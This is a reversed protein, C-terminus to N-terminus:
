RLPTTSGPTFSSSGSLISSPILVESEASDIRNAQLPGSYINAPEEASAQSVRNQFDNESDFGVQGVASKSNTTSGFGGHPTAPYFSNSDGGSNSNYSPPVPARPQQVPPSYRQGQYQNAVPLGARPNYADNVQDLPLVVGEITNQVAQQAPQTPAVPSEGHQRVLQLLQSAQQAPQTPAVPSQKAAAMQAKLMAIQRKAEEVESRMKEVSDNNAIPTAGFSNTTLANPKSLANPKGLQLLPNSNSPLAPQGANLDLPRGPNQAIFSGDAAIKPFPQNALDQTRPSVNKLASLQNNVDQVPGAKAVQSKLANAKMEAQKQAALLRQEFQSKMSNVDSKASSKAQSGASMLRGKADYLPKKAGAAIEGSALKVNNFADSKPLFSGGGISKANDIAKGIPAAAFSNDKAAFSNSDGTLSNKTGSGSNTASNMATRFDQQAGSLSNSAASKTDEFKNKLNDADLNFKSEVKALADDGGLDDLGYPKRMPKSNLKELSEKPFKFGKSAIDSAEKASDEIRMGYQDFQSQQSKAKEAVQTEAGGGFRAPDFHRAPPPPLESDEGSKWFALSPLKPLTPLKPKGFEMSKCGNLSAFGFCLLFILTTKSAKSLM